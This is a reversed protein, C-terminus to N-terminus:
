KTNKTSGDEATVTYEVPVSFSQATKNVPSLNKGTYTITPKLNTLVTSNPFQAKITDAVIV